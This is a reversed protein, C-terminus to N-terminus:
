RGALKNIGWKVASNLGSYGAGIAQGAAQLAVVSGRAALKAGEEVGKLAWYSSVGSVWASALIPATAGLVAGSGAALLVNGLPHEPTRGARAGAIVEHLGFATGAVAGAVAAAAMVPVFSVTGVFSGVLGAWAGASAVLFSVGSPFDLRREEWPFLVRSIGRRSRKEPGPPECTRLGKATGADAEAAARAAQRILNRAGSADVYAASRPVGPAAIGEGFPIDSTNKLGELGEAAIARLPSLALLLAALARSHSNRKM